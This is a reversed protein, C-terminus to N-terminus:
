SAPLRFTLSPGLPRGKHLWTVRYRRPGRVWYYRRLKVFGGWRPGYVGMQRVRFGRCLARGGLPQVCLRYRPFYGEFMSLSLWYAGTTTKRFVAYCIDQRNTCRSAVAGTKTPLAVGPVSLAGVVLACLVIKKM